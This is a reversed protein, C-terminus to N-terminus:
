RGIGGSVHKEIDSIVGFGAVRHRKESAEEVARRNKEDSLREVKASREGFGQEKPEDSDQRHSVYRSQSRKRYKRRNQKRNPHKGVDAFRIRSPIVGCHKPNRRDDPRKKGANGNPM